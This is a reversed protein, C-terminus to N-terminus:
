IGALYKLSKKIKTVWIKHLFKSVPKATPHWILLTWVRRRDSNSHAEGLMLLGTKSRIIFSFNHLFM